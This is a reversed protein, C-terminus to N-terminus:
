SSNVGSTKCLTSSALYSNAGYIISEEIDSEVQTPRLPCFGEPVGGRQIPHGSDLFINFLFDFRGHAIDIICVDGISVGTQRYEVPLRM